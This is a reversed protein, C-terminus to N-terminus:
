VCSDEGNKKLKFKYTEGNKFPSHISKESDDIYKKLFKNWESRYFNVYSGGRYPRFKHKHSIGWEEIIRRWRPNLARKDILNPALIFLRTMFNDLARNNRSLYGEVFDNKYLRRKRFYKNGNDYMITNRFFMYEEHILCKKLFMLFVQTATM